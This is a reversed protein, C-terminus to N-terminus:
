KHKAKDENAKEGRKAQDRKKREGGGESEVEREADRKREGREAESNGLDRRGKREGDKRRRTRAKREYMEACWEIMEDERMEGSESEADTEIHDDTDGGNDSGDDWWDKEMCRGEGDGEVGKGGSREVKGANDRDNEIHMDHDGDRETENENENGEEEQCLWWDKEGELDKVDMDEERDDWRDMLDGEDMDEWWDIDIHEIHEAKLDFCL